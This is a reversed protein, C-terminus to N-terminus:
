GAIDALSVAGTLGLSDIAGLIFRRQTEDDLKSLRVGYALAACAARDMISDRLGRMMMKHKVQASMEAKNVVVLQTSLAFTNDM